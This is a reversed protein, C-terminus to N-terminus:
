IDIETGVKIEIFHEGYEKRFIEEALKGSCHTPGAKKVNMERFREVIIEIARRDTDMLHFGGLVAYIGKAPFNEQVKKLMKVIGPHACGTILTIGKSTNLVLAQEPIFKGKYTGSTEGTLFVNKLIEMYRELEILEGKFCQVKDKFEHSFHPCGYVKLRPKLELLKWLGGTHDWHDHSIAVAEIGTIKVQLTRMNEILWEGREGTDFLIQDDILYSVGWGTHFNTNVTDKDFLIKIKL